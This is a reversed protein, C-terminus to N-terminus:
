GVHVGGSRTFVPLGVDIGRRAHARRRGTPPRGRVARTLLAFLAEVTMTLLLYVLLLMLYIPVTLGTRVRAIEAWYLLDAVTVFSVVSTWKTVEVAVRGIGPVLMPVMQPLLVRVAARLPPLGLATIADFQGLRISSRAARVEEAAYAAGTLGLVVWAIVFGDATVRGPLLPVAYFAWFLLVIASNSRFVETFAAAVARVARSRSSRAFGVPLGVLVMVLISLATVQVTVVLGDVMDSKNLLTEM